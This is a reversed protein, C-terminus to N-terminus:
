FINIINIKTTGVGWLDVPKGYHPSECLLEPARYWRTQVYETMASNDDDFGRVNAFYM